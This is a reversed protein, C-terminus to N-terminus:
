DSMANQFDDVFAGILTGDYYYLTGQSFLRTSGHHSTNLGAQEATGIPAEVSLSFDGSLKTLNWLV